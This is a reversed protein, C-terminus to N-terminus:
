RRARASASGGGRARALDHELQESVSIERSGALRSLALLRTELLQERAARELEAYLAVPVWLPVGAGAASARELASASSARLEGFPRPPVSGAAADEAVAERARNRIGALAAMHEDAFWCLAPLEEVTGRFAREPASWVVRYAYHESPDAASQQEAALRTILTSLADATRTDSAQVSM